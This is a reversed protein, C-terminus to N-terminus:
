PKHLATFEPRELNVSRVFCKNAHPPRKANEGLRTENNGTRQQIAM